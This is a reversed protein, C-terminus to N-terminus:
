GLLRRGVRARVSRRRLFIWLTLCLAWGPTPAASPGGAACGGGSPPQAEVCGPVDPGSPVCRRIMVVRAAPVDPLLSVSGDAWVVEVDRAADASGLGFRVTAPAGVLYSPGSLADRRKRVGAVTARVYAGHAFAPPGLRLEVSGGTASRNELLRVPGDMTTFLLDDDGDGDADFALLARADDERDLDTGMFRAFSGGRNEFVYGPGRVLRDEPLDGEYAAFGNVAVLDLDGDLDLDVWETGWGWRTDALGREEASDVFTLRGTQALQNEYLANRNRFRADSLFINTTFLDLDGDDDFDAAAVGMDSSEHTVGAEESQERFRGGRRVFLLDEAKDVAVFLDLGPRDDLQALVPTFSDETHEGLGQAATAEEFRLDGRGLYLENHGPFVPTMGFGGTWVTVYVDLEGDGNVDGLAAGGIPWASPALDSGASVDEFGGGGDGRFVRSRGSGDPGADNLLILDVDGSHDLDVLFAVRAQGEDALAPPTIDVFRPAGPTSDNRYLHNPSGANALLYLDLDGDGDIDGAAVGVGNQAASRGAESAGYDPAPGTVHDIGAATTVDVLSIQAQASVALMWVGLLGGLRRM